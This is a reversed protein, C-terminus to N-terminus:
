SGATRPRLEQVGKECFLSRGWRAGCDRPPARISRAIDFDQGPEIGLKRLKEVMAADAAAPPNDKLLRAFRGFFAGADM